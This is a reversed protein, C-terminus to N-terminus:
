ESFTESGFTKNLNYPPDAFLLDFSREPLTALLEFADGCIVQDILGKAASREGRLRDAEMPSVDITRNRAARKKTPMIAFVRACRKDPWVTQVTVFVRRCKSGRLM